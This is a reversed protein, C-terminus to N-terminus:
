ACASLVLSRMIREREQQSLNSVILWNCIQRSLQVADTYRGRATMADLRQSERRILEALDRDTKARLHALATKM